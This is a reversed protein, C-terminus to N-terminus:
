AGWTEVKVFEWGWGCIYRTGAQIEVEFVPVCLFPKPFAVTVFLANKATARSKPIFVCFVAFAYWFVVFLRRFLLSGKCLPVSPNFAAVVVFFLVKQIQHRGKLM